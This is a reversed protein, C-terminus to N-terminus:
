AFMVNIIVAPFTWQLASFNTLLAKHVSHREELYKNVCLSLSFAVSVVKVLHDHDLYGINLCLWLMVGMLPNLSSENRYHEEFIHM